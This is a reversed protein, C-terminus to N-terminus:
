KQSRSVPAPRKSRAARRDRAAASRDEVGAAIPAPAILPTLLRSATSEFRSISNYAHALLMAGELGSVIQRAAETVPGVISLTGDEIGDALVTTLWAENDDFFETVATRMSLPLTAHEAALIGCLCMRQQHVIDYHLGVYAQLRTPADAGCRDIDALAERFRAAYRDILAQGLEAKGPFHYHLSAKTVGLETAVDAYSFANYGRVQVLREAVDVARQATGARTSPTPPPMRDSHRIPRRLAGLETSLKGGLLDADIRGPIEEGSQHDLLAPVQIRFQVEGAKARSVM